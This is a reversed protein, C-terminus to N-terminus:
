QNRQFSTGAVSSRAATQHGFGLSDPVRYVIVVMRQDLPAPRRDVVEVGLRLLEKVERDAEKKSLVKEVFCMIRLGKSRDQM